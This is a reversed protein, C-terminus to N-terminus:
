SRGTVEIVQELMRGLGPRSTDDLVDDSNLSMGIGPFRQKEPRQPTQTELM